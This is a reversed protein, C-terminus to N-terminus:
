PQVVPTVHVIEVIDKSVKQSKFTLQRVTPLSWPRLERNLKQLLMGKIM